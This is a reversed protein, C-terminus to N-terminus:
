HETAVDMRGGRVTLTVTGDRDTRYVHPVSARLAALTEPTPHGYSNEAGVEIAAVQPRLRELVQPLGPDASGHHSVKMAEVPHLPLPLIAESEADASLWLDFGGASVIAAVGRPNPDEPPPAGPALPAPSLIEITLRGVQLVQGARAPVHRIGRADAEALLRRFDRDATGDSNELLLSTPIRELVEHLGGQHDRSQHTAVMLDLRRVGAARLQRYVRAEPPGGDFLAAAGAGDQILTADGQGIDLFRVTLAEPPPPTALVANAAMAVVAAVLAVAGARLSRPSRRWAAALELAGPGRAASARTRRASARLLLRPGYVLAAMAAYASVVAPVSGLPLELRGGPLTACREALGDLYGIPVRTLPGLAEALQEAGPLLPAVVGLAAKVMGLWMAPAVAPLALLNAPLGALPVSGFHYALLPATALTAAVTIAVGECLGDVVARGLTPLRGAGPDPRRGVAAALGARRPPGALEEAIRRLRAALPRGAFLIGAVAVFSLQWGPDGCARPNLALTITAALLLAYWRSSPRSLVMAAIGAAGMVGARQLSPGAGALPVYLAVLCLLAIGRGRPGLGAAVLLPLALAMLLMVNQGSVALLHSLGADRWDDRTATDIEEDEGLVMGLALAADTERLGASVGREARGRLRDLAGAIGDRRRGTVGIRDVMLEGAIGRRRLLAPFDFQADPDPPPQRLWGALALESGIATSNPLAPRAGRDAFRLLVRTGALSGTAIRAQASAGFASRRPHTLLHARARIARGEGAIVPAHDLARLRADGVASGLLLLGAAVVALVPARLWALSALSGAAVALALRTEALSRALGAALSGVAVHWPRGALSPRRPRPAPEVAPKRGAPETV